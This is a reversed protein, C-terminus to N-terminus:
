CWRIARRSFRGSRGRRWSAAPFEVARDRRGRGAARAHDAGARRSGHARSRRLDQRDSGRVVPHLARHGSHGREPQRPHAQRHGADGAAGARRPERPDAGCVAAAGEQAGRAAAEGLLGIAFRPARRPWPRTSTRAHRLGRGARAGRRDGSQRSDFTAGSASDVYRGGIFAQTRLSSAVQRPRALFRHDPQANM